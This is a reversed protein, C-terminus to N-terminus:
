KILDSLTGSMSAPFAVIIVRKIALLPDSSWPCKLIVTLMIAVVALSILYTGVVRKFFEFKHDQFNRKYFNFYVFLGILAMSLVAISAVNLTPLTEGLVWAEETLSVPLALIAAGVAVQILDRPKFEVMLPKLAYSLVEGSKDAIPIVRHLIGGIRKITPEKVKLEDSM